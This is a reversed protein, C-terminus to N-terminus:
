SQWRNPHIQARSDLDAAEKDTAQRSDHGIRANPPLKGAKVAAVVRLYAEHHLQRAVKSM